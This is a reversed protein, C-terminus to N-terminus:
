EKSSQKRRKRLRQRFVSLVKLSRNMCSSLTQRKLHSRARLCLMCSFESRGFISLSAKMALIRSSRLHWTPRHAVSSRFLRAKAYSKASVLIVFRLERRPTLCYIISSSTATSSQDVTSTRLAMCLKSLSTNRTAKM